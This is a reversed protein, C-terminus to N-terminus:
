RCDLQAAGLRGQTRDAHLKGDHHRPQGLLRNTQGVFWVSTASEAFPDRPRSEEYPVQWERIDLSEAHAPLALTCAASAFLLLIAQRM